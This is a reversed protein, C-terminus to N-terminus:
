VLIGSFDVKQPNKKLSVVICKSTCNECMSKNMSLSYKCNKKLSLQAFQTAM